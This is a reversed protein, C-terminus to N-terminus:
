VVPESRVGFREQYRKYAAREAITRPDEAASKEYANKNGHSGQHRANLFTSMRRAAEDTLPLRFEHHIRIGPAPALSRPHEVTQEGVRAVVLQEDPGVTVM